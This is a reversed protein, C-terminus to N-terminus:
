ACSSPLRKTPREDNIDDSTRKISNPLKWCPQAYIRQKVLKQQDALKEALTMVEHIDKPQPVRCSQVATEIVSKLHPLLSNLYRRMLKTQSFSLNAIKAYRLFKKNYDQVPEYEKMELALFHEAYKEQRKRAIQLDEEDNLPPTPLPDYSRSQSYELTRSRSPTPLIKKFPTQDDSFQALYKQRAQIWSYNRNLINQRAWQLKDEPLAHSLLLEWVDSVNMNNEQAFGNATKEFQDLFVKPPIYTPSTSCRSNNNIPKQQETPERKIKSVVQEKFQQPPSIPMAVVQQEEQERSNNNNKSPSKIMTSASSLTRNRQNDNSFPYALKLVRIVMNVKEYNDLMQKYSNMLENDIQSLDQVSNNFAESVM